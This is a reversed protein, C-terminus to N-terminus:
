NVRTDARLALEIRQDLQARRETTLQDLCDGHVIWWAERGDPNRGVINAPDQLLQEQLERDALVGVGIVAMNGTGVTQECSPCIPQQDETFLLRRVAPRAYPFWLLQRAVLLDFGDRNNVRIGWISRYQYPDPANLPTLHEL